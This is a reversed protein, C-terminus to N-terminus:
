KPSKNFFSFGSTFTSGLGLFLTAIAIGSFTLMSIFREDQFINKSKIQPEGNSITNIGLVDSGAIEASPTKEPEATVSVLLEDTKSPAIFLDNPVALLTQATAVSETNITTSSNVPEKISISVSQPLEENGLKDISRFQITTTGSSNVVIPETYIQVTQGNDLSYEIKLIGSGSADNSSLNFTVTGTYNGENDKDGGIVVETNPPTQDSTNNGSVESTPAITENNSTLIPSTPSTTSTNPIVISVSSSPKVEIDKYVTTKVVTDKKYSNVKINTKKTTSKKNTVKATVKKNSNKKVFANKSKKTKSFITGPINEEVEDDNKLGTHNNDEDYLDLETDEDVNIHEGELDIKESKIEVPLSEELLIKKVTQMAVGSSSVLNGHSQETYYIDAGASLDKNPSKLSASYLPVTDDGNIYIEQYNEILNIPWNIVWNERMQGLTPQGSGVINYFKVENNRNLDLSDHFQKSVDVLLSSLNLNKLLSQVQFFELPGVTNDKDIDRDDRFPFQDSGYFSFYLQNPSLTFASPMTRAVDRSEAPPVGLPFIGWIPRGMFEGYMINKLADVSGLHPTGLTILKNVNKAKEPDSIYSRAVLGGMSHAVINVKSLGSKQKAEEILKDLPDKNERLDKRWDYTYSFYNTGKQYGMGQFFNDIDGYGYPVMWGNTELPAESTKGDAKLKLVDFYDDDGLKAAEDQNVWVKEDKLYTHKYIGGHGDDKEWTTDEKIKLESGGIGPIFIIPYIPKPINLATVKINDFRISALGYDGTWYTLFMGGKKVTTDKDDLDFIIQNDLFIQIHEAVVEIKVKYTVGTVIQPQTVRALQTVVGGQSKRLIIEPAGMFGIVGRVAHRLALEYYNQSDSRRFGITEDISSDNKVDLEIRYNDWTSGGPTILGHLLSGGVVAALQKSTDIVWKGSEVTWGNYNGDNFDDTLLSGGSTYSEVALVRSVIVLLFTLSILLILLLKYIIM